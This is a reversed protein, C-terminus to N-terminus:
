AFYVLASCFSAYINAGKEFLLSPYWVSRQIDLSFKLKKAQKGFTKQSHVCEVSVCSRLDINELSDELIKM